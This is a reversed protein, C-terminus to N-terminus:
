QTRPAAETAEEAPLVSAFQRALHLGLPWQKRGNDEAM